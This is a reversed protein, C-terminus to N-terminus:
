RLPVLTLLGCGFGKGHGIGCVLAHRLRDADIVQLAGDYRATALTVKTKGQGKTFTQKRSESVVLRPCHSAEDELVTFGNHISRSTKEQSDAEPGDLGYAADGILWAAQQQSTLHSIRKSRGGENTIARRNVVPNAVLRFSYRQGVELQELFPDYDRTKWQPPLDPWGIQEDLGVLSPQTPSVIYLYSPADVGRDVRWLVRGAGASEDNQPFSGAIAAHLRYPSSLMAHTDRRTMNIPFQTLYM